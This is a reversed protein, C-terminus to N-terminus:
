GKQKINFYINITHMEDDISIHTAEPICKDLVSNFWSDTEELTEEYKPGPECWTIIVSTVDNSNPPCEYQIDYGKEELYNEYGNLECPHIRTYTRGMCAAKYIESIIHIFASDVYCDEEFDERERVAYTLNCLEEASKLIDIM